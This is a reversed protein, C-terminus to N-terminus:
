TIRLKTGGKYPKNIWLKRKKDSKKKNHLKKFEKKYKQM